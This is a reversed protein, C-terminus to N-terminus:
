KLICYTVYLITLLQDPKPLSPDEIGKVYRQRCNYKKRTLPDLHMEEVQLISHTAKMDVNWL